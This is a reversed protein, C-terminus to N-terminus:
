KEGKKKSCLSGNNSVKMSNVILKSIEDRRIDTNPKYIYIKSNEEKESGVSICNSRLYNSCKDWDEDKISKCESFQNSDSKLVNALVKAVYGRSANKDLNNMIDKGDLLEIDKDKNNLFKIYKSFPKNINDTFFNGKDDKTKDTYKLIARSVIKLFEGNRIKRSGKFLGDNYGIIYGGNYLERIYDEAFKGRIDSLKEPLYFNRFIKESSWKKDFFFQEATYNCKIKINFKHLFLEESNGNNLTINYKSATSSIYPIKGNESLGNEYLLKEFSCEEKIAADYRVPSNLYAKYFSIDKQGLGNIGTNKIHVTTLESPMSYLPNFGKLDINYPSGKKTNPALYLKFNGGNGYEEILMLMLQAAKPAISMDVDKLGNGHNKIERGLDFNYKGFSTVKRLHIYHFFVDLFTNLHNKQPNLADFKYRYKLSKQVIFESLKDIDMNFYQYAYHFDEIMIKIDYKELVKNNITWAAIFNTTIKGTKLGVDIAFLMRGLKNTYKSVLEKSLIQGTNWYNDLAQFTIDKIGAFIPSSIINCMNTQTKEITKDKCTENYIDLQIDIFDRGITKMNGGLLNNMRDISKKVIDMNDIAKMVDSHTSLIIQFNSSAENSLKNSASSVGKYLIYNQAKIHNESTNYIPNIYLGGNSLFGFDGTDYESLSYRSSETLPFFKITEFAYINNLLFFGLILIKRM